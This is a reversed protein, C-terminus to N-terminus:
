RFIDYASYAPAENLRRRAALNFTLTLNDYIDAELNSRLNFQQYTLVDETYNSGQSLYGANVFYKVKDGGGSLSLNHRQQFGWDKIVLGEWDTNPYNLPDSGSRYAEIQEDSYFPAQNDNRLGENLVEGYQASSLYNPSSTFGTYTFGNTYKLVPKGYVGSRTKVLVVGNGGQVGYISAAAADKLVSISEIENADLQNLDGPSGDIIVLANGFNRVEFSSASFGPEGSGQRVFLGAALGELANSVNPVPIEKLAKADVVSVASIIKTRSTTGYGVVIVEDLSNADGVLKIQLNTVDGIEIEQSLYGLYSIALIDGKQSEISFNGDFDTQAGKSSGKIIINAGPLPEGTNADTVKGTVSIQALGISSCLFFVMVLLANKGLKKSCNFLMTKM